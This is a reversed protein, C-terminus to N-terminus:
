EEAPQSDIVAEVVAVAISTCSSVLSLLRLFAGGMAGARVSLRASPAASLSLIAEEFRSSALFKQWFDVPRRMRLTTM